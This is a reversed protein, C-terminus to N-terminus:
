PNQPPAPATIMLAPLPPRRWTGSLPPRLTIDTAYTGLGIGDFTRTVSGVVDRTILFDPLQPCTPCHVQYTVMEMPGNGLELSVGLTWVPRGNADFFYNLIVQEPVGNDPRFHDDIAWGWGDEGPAYWIGTREPQPRRTGYLSQMLEGGRRGEFTWTFLYITPSLYTIQGRGVKAGTSRFPTTSTQVYREIDVDAQNSLRRDTFRGTVLLWEPTRAPTGTFWLGAFQDPEGTRPVVASTMGNGFRTLSSFQGDQPRPAAPPDGLCTTSVQCTAPIRTELISRAGRMDHTADDVTGVYDLAVSRGCEADVPVAFHVTTNVMAGPQVTALSITPTTVAVPASTLTFPDQGPAFMCVARGSSSAGTQNCSYVLQNTVGADHIGIGAGAGALPEAVRYQYVIQNSGEYLIAQFEGAGAPTFGFRGMNTWQFVTCGTAGPADSPRPCTPFFQRRLGGGVGVILDDHLVNFRAGSSGLDPESFPCANDYDGGSDTNSTSLYGNTSMVVERLLQGYFRFGNPGLPLPSAARGDDTSSLPLPPQNGIDVFQYPCSASTNDLVRYGFGDTRGANPEGNAFVAYAQRLARDGVNAISVPVRWREGPEVNGDGDGCVQQPPQAGVEVGPGRVVIAARRASSCGVSDTVRVIADTNRANPYVALQLASSTVGTQRRDVIGDADVDFEVVFPGQGRIGTVRHEANEGAGIQAPVTLDFEPAPCNNLGDLLLTEPADPALHDSLRTSPSGGGDWAFYLRGFVSSEPRECTGGGGTHVGVLRNDQDLLAAGLSGSDILGLNWFTQWLFPGTPSNIPPDLYFPPDDDFSIRKERGSPHHVVSTRSPRADSRDWGLFYHDAGAPIPARLEIIALNSPQYDALIVSGGTQAIANALPIAVGNEASGVPRCAISEHRWYPVVSNASAQNNVCQRSTLMLRRRDGRTNNVLQGTCTFGGVTLRAVARIPDRLGNGQPCAADISCNASKGLPSLDSFLDRYGAHVTSLTLEVRDATEPPVLLEIVARDGPVVPTWFGGDAPNDADTWPGRVFKGDASALYLEAGQPLWMREFGVDITVANPVNLGLRWLRRGDALTQWQGPNKAGGIGAGQTNLAIAYRLPLHEATAEDEALAKAADLAPLRLVAEPSIASAGSASSPLTSAEATMSSFMALVLLLSFGKM